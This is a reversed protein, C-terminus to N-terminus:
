FNSSPQLSEIPVHKCFTKTFEVEWMEAGHCCLRAKSFAKQSSFVKGLFDKQYKLTWLCWSVVFSTMPGPSSISNSPFLRDLFPLVRNYAMAVRASFTYAVETSSKEIFPLTNFDLKATPCRFAECIIFTKRRTTSYTENSNGIFPCRPMKNTALQRETPFLFSFHRSSFM